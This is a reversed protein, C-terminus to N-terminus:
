LKFFTKLFSIIIEDRDIKTGTTFIKLARLFLFRLQGAWSNIISSDLLKLPAMQNQRTLICKEKM